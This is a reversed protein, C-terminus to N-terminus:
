NTVTFPLFWGHTIPLERTFVDLILQLYIRSGCTDAFIGHLNPIVRLVFNLTTGVHTGAIISHALITSSTQRLAAMRTATEVKGNHAAWVARSIASISSPVGGRLCRRKM